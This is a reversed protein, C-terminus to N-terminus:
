PEPKEANGEDGERHQGDGRTPRSVRPGERDGFEVYAKFRALDAEVARKAFRRMSVGAERSMGSPVFDVTVLIPDTRTWGTSSIVGSHHTGSVARWVIRDDAAQRHDGRGV